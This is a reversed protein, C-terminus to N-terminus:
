TSLPDHSVGVSIRGARKAFVVTCTSKQSRTAFDTVASSSFSASTKLNIEAADEADEATM